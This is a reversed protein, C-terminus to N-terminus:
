ILLPRNLMTLEINLEISNIKGIMISAFSETWLIQHHLTPHSSSNGFSKILWCFKIGNETQQWYKYSRPDNQFWSVYLLIFYFLFTSYCTNTPAEQLTYPVVAYIFTVLVSEFCEFMDFIKGIFFLKCGYGPLFHM